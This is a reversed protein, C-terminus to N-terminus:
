IPPRAIHKPRKPIQHENYNGHPKGASKHGACGQRLRHRQFTIPPGAVRIVGDRCAACAIPEVKSGYLEMMMRRYPKQDFSSGVQWVEAEMGFLTCAFSLATGWQGAGTETTLKKIGAQSNYYCQVLNDSANTTRSFLEHNSGLVAIGFVQPV